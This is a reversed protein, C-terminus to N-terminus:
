PRQALIKAGLRGQQRHGSLVLAGDLSVARGWSVEWLTSFWVMRAM